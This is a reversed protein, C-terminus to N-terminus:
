SKFCSIPTFARLNRDGTVIQGNCQLWAHAALNKPSNLPQSVGFFITAKMGRATLMAKAALAQEFCKTRWPSRRSARLIARGTKLLIPTTVPTEQHQEGAASPQGMLAVIKPFPLLVVTVRALALFCWAEAFLLYDEPKLDKNM